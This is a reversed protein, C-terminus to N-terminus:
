KAPLSYSGVWDIEVMSGTFHGVLTVKGTIGEFRGTGALIEGSGKSLQSAQEFNGVMRVTISSLDDFRFMYVTAFPMLGNDVAHNSGYQM